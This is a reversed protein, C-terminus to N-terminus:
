GLAAARWARRSALLDDRVRADSWRPHVGDGGHKDVGGVSGWSGSDRANPAEAWDGFDYAAAAGPLGARVAANFAARTAMGVPQGTDFRPSLTMPHVRAGPHAARLTAILATLGAVLDDASASWLDNVGLNVHVNVVANPIRGIVAARAGFADVQPLLSDGTACLKLVGHADDAERAFGAVGSGDAAHGQDVTISDGVYVEASANGAMLGKILVPMLLDGGSGWGSRDAADLPPPGGDTGVLKASHPGPRRNYSGLYAAGRWSTRVGILEGAAAADLGPISVPDHWPSLQGSGVTVESAGDWTVPHFVGSGAPHEYAMAYTCAAGDQSETGAGSMHANVFCAQLERCGGLLPLADYGAAWTEAGHTSADDSGPFNLVATVLQATGVPPPSPDDVDDPAASLFPAGHLARRVSALGASAGPALPHITGSHSPSRDRAPPM